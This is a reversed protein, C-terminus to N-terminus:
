LRQFTYFKGEQRGGGTGFDVQRLERTIQFGDLEVMATERFVRALLRGAQIAPTDKASGPLEIGHLDCLECIESATLAASLRGESAIALAVARLWTLAPNAAREQAETHGDLLPASDLLNQVIWDLTQAWERFDHRCDKTRPKGSAVWEAVLAFVCGLYFPQRARIDGLTDRYAFGPRKRIRCISARNAFDETASVGNSTLQVLFRRPDILIDGKGPVRAGFMGDATLFAELHQSDLKGRLNTWRIFPRGAVLASNFTEDASGVGGQRITVIYARERYLSDNCDLRYDKGAQSRDAEAADVPIKGKLFGGLRLAPTIFSALARSRDGESQFDTEEVLSKLAAAAEDIPVQPPVDGGTVLAGGLHPHYGQSLIICEGDPGQTIIPASVVSSIPPLLERAELTAMLAKAIDVSMHTPALAPKGNKGARWAFVNGLREVRSRFGDPGCPALCPQGDVHTLEVLAGGRWFLKRAPAFRTFIARASESYSVSGSPLVLISAEGSAMDPPAESDDPPPSDDYDPAAEPLPLTVADPNQWLDPDHSVFCLRLKDKCSPDIEVGYTERFYAEAAFFSDLHRSGDIRLGLKLGDGSPSLFGFAIHADAQVQARVSALRNGLKDLDVQLLGSHALPTRRDSCTGSMTFAPLTKKHADYAKAQPSDKSDLTPCIDRWANFLERARAIPQAYRDGAMKALLAALKVNAPPAPLVNPFMSVVASELFTSM